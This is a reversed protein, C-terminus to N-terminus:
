LPIGTGENFSTLNEESCQGVESVILVFTNTGVFVFTGKNM